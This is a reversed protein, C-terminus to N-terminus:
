TTAELDAVDQGEAPPLIIRLDREPDFGAAVYREVLALAADHGARRGTRPSPRDHDVLVTLGELGAFVPLAKLNGATMAAWVPVLGARAAALCTEIGEGIVLGTTADAEPWLRIVGVVPHGKLLRRPIDIPAKGLGDRALWTRHLNIALGTVADTVLGVLTPGIYGSARDELGPHWRLHTEEVFPPLVCGRGELYRAAATGPEIPRCRAWLSRGWPALERHRRAGDEEAGRAPQQRRRPAPTAEARDREPILRRARLAELIDGLGCGAYCDLRVRAGM